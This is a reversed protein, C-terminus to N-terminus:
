VCVCKSTQIYLISDLRRTKTQDYKFNQMKRKSFKMTYVTSMTWTLVNSEIEIKELMQITDWLITICYTEM